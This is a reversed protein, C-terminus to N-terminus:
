KMLIMKKSASYENVRLRYFYIGSAYGGTIIWSDIPHHMLNIDYTGPTLYEDVIVAVEQGLLNYIKLTTFGAESINFRFNTTPNFPNPYNQELAYNAPTLKEDEIGLPNFTKFRWVPSWNSTGYINNARVKWFHFANLQLGNVAFSTDAIGPANTVITNTLLILM